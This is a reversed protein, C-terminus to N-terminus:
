DTLRYVQIGPHLYIVTGRDRDFVLKEERMLQEYFAKRRQFDKKGSEQPKLGKLFFRGYDSESIAVHTVGFTKLDEISGIDAAFRVPEGAANRSIIKQPVVGVRSAHKKRKSDPLQIRNDRAIVADAPLEKKMWEILAANDDHQFAEEYRLWSPLQALVLVAMAGFTAWRRQQGRTFLQGFDLTGLAALVVLMATAPLFYRDNSKASFSLAVAFAFPFAILLIEALGLDRRQRWRAHLFVLLLAWIAPTTNDIFINWYQAHPVNRTLGGQGKAALEVEREFSDRFLGTNALMPWNVALLGGLLAIAFVALLAPTGFGPHQIRPSSAARTLPMPQDSPTSFADADIGREANRAGCKWLVAVAMGAAVAGLYKGSIALACAVGLLAARVLTPKYSIALMMLFSIALGALLASDEKMYHALEYLQHHLALAAGGAIAAEWGRWAYALLSLAVVALAMFAASVWRGAEVAPQERKEIGAIKVVARTTGLLLMPHHFNWKGEIVQEAKGPEDPHYYYPFRNHRVFLTLSVAFLLAAWGILRWLDRKTEFPPNM